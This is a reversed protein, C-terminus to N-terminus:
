KLYTTDVTVTLAEPDKSKFAGFDKLFGRVKGETEKFQPATLFKEAEARSTYFRTADLM